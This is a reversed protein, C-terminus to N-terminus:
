IMKPTKHGVPSTYEKTDVSISLYTNVYRREGLPEATRFWQRVCGADTWTTNTTNQMYMRLKILRVGGDVNLSVAIM